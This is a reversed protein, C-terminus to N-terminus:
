SAALHVHAVIGIAADNLADRYGAAAVGPPSRVGVFHEVTGIVSAQHDHRELVRATGHCSAFRARQHWQDLRRGFQNMRVVDCGVPADERERWELARRRADRQTHQDVPMRVSCRFLWCVSM